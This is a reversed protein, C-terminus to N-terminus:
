YKLCDNFNVRLEGVESEPFLNFLSEIFDIVNEHFFDVVKNNLMDVSNLHPSYSLDLLNKSKLFEFISKHGYPSESKVIGNEEYYHIEIEKGHVLMNRFSFLMNIAKWNENEIKGSLKEGLLLDFYEIYNTWTAKSLKKDFYDTLSNNFKDKRHEFRDFFIETQMEFVIGEWFTSLDTILSANITPVLYDKKENDVSDRNAIKWKILSPYYLWLPFSDLFYHEKM